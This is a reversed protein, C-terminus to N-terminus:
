VNNGTMKTEEADAPDTATNNGSQETDSSDPTTVAPESAKKSLGFYAAIGKADAAGLKQLSEADALYTMCDKKNSVFAHEVILGAIGAQKSSRIVKYYDARSNDSYRRLSSTRTKIGRNRLGLAVLQKLINQAAKRGATSLQKKYSGNPYYVCAGNETSSLDANNHLSVFLDAKKKKAYDVRGQLSVTRDDSRTLYVKVGAYEELNAKCALAIALNMNKERYLKGGWRRFTGNESGGHGADLVVVVSSQKTGSKTAAYLRDTPMLVTLVIAMALILSVARRKQKIRM